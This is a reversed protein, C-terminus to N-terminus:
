SEHLSPSTCDAVGVFDTGPSEHVEELQQHDDASLWLAGFSATIFNLDWYHLVENPEFTSVM